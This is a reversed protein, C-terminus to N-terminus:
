GIKVIENSPYSDHHRLWSQTRDEGEQRGLATFDLFNYTNLPLELGRQYTSYTHYVEDGERLFASLGPLEGKDFWIKRAQLLDATSAYNYEVSGRDKDLTVHFDYNFDTGYSSLWQFTWGMRKKFPEIKDLPALSVVVFATSRAALHVIAGQSNDMFHSCHKCGQKWEPDFMFHYVLLQQHRGFLDKLGISGEPGQFVYEKEIRVMPLNRREESLADRQRSFEKEKALFARRAALWESRSVITSSSSM